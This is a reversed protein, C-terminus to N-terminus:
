HIFGVKRLVNEMTEFDVPKVLTALAGTDQARQATEPQDDVTVVVVPVREFRPDRRLYTLLEFGPVGPMNLDLFVIDPVHREVHLIAARPGFAPQAAIGLFELMRCLTNATTRDDDIVLATPM